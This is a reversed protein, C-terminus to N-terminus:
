VVNSNDENEQNEKQGVVFAATVGSSKRLHVKNMM